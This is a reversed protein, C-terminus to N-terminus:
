KPLRQIRTRDAWYVYQDDVVVDKGHELKEVVKTASGGGRPVKFIHDETIWYVNSGDVAFDAGPIQGEIVNVATGGGKPIRQIVMKENAGFSVFLDPGDVFFTHLTHKDDEHVKAATGGKKPARFVMGSLTSYWYLHSEDITLGDPIGAEAVTRVKGGAKPVAFIGGNEAWFVDNDDIVLGRSIGTTPALEKAPGGGRPATMIKGERPALWYVASADIGIAMVDAPGSTVTVTPGGNRAVGFVGKEGVSRGGQNLWFVQDGSVQLARPANQVKALLTANAPAPLLDSNGADARAANAQRAMAMYDNGGKCGSLGLLLLLGLTRM